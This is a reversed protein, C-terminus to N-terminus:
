HQFHRSNRSQMIQKNEAYKTYRETEPLHGYLDNAAEREDSSLLQKANRRDRGGAGNPTQRSPPAVTRMAGKGAAAPQPSRVTYDLDGGDTQSYPNDANAVGDDAAGDGNDIDEDVGEDHSQSMPRVSADIAAFYERSNVEHGDELADEAARVVQKFYKQDTFVKPHALFFRQSPEDFSSLPRGNPLRRDAQAPQSAGRQATPQQAAKGAAAEREGALAEKRDRQRGLNTEIGALKRTLQAIEKGHGPEDALSAIQDEISQAESELSTITSECANEEALLRREEESMSKELAERERAEAQEARSMYTDRQNTAEALLRRLEEMETDRNPAEGDTKPTKAM